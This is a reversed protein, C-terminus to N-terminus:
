NQYKDHPCVTNSYPLINPDKTITPLWFPGMLLFTQSVSPQADFFYNKLPILKERTHNQRAKFGM